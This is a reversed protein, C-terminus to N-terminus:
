SLAPLIHHILFDISTKVQLQRWMRRFNLDLLEKLNECDGRNPSMRKQHQGGFFFILVKGIVLSTISTFSPINM